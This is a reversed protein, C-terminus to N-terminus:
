APRGLVSTVPFKEQNFELISKLEYLHELSLPCSQYSSISVYILKQTFFSTALLINTSSKNMGSILSVPEASTTVV